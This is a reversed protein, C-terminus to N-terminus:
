AMALVGSTLSFSAYSRMSCVAHEQSLGDLVVTVMAM